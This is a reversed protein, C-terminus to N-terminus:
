RAGVITIPAQTTRISWPARAASPSRCGCGSIRAASATRATWCRSGAATRSRTSARSRSARTGLGQRPRRRAAQGPLVVRLHARARGSRHRPGPRHRRAGRFRRGGRADADITARRAALVQDREVRPQRRDHPDERRRRRGDGASSRTSRSWGRSRRSSTSRSCAGSSTPCRVGPRADAAGDRADPPLHAPGRDAEAAVAHERPRHARHRAARALAQRRRQRAPARRGRAGRHAADQARALRAAPLPEAAAELDSLRSRLWELRQGLYRLDQPGNVEIAHTFDATGM